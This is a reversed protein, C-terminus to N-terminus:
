VTTHRAKRRRIYEEVEAKFVHETDLLAKAKILAYKSQDEYFDKDHIYRKITDKYDSLSECWYREGVTGAVDGYNVTLVPVGVSLAEVASTAGGKRVPNICLDMNKLIGIVDEQPGLDILRIKNGYKRSVYEGKGYVGIIIVVINEDHLKSLEEWFEDRIEVDLRAGVVAIAFDNDAIGLMDRTYTGYSDKISFTFSGEIINDAYNMANILDKEFEIQYKDVIQYDCLSKILYSQTTGVTLTPILENVVGAFFSDGGVCVCAKPKLKRIVGLLLGMIEENPMNQECQFYGFKKGKWEVFEEELLSNDYIPSYKGLVPIAGVRTMCEATNIILVNEFMSKLSYARDATTKTPGHTYHVFQDTILVATDGNLDEEKMPSLDLSTERKFLAFAKQLIKWQLENVRTTNLHPNLMSCHAMRQYLFYLNQWVLSDADLVVNAMDIMIKENDSYMIMLSYLLIKINLSIGDNGEVIYNIRSIIEEDKRIELEEAIKVLITKDFYVKDISEEVKQIYEEIRSDM